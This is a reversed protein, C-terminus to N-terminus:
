VHWGMPYHAFELNKFAELQKWTRQRLYDNSTGSLLPHGKLLVAQYLNQFRTMQISVEKQTHLNTFEAHTRSVSAQKELSQTLWVDGLPQDAKFLRRVQTLAQKEEFLFQTFGPWKSPANEIDKDAGGIYLARKKWGSPNFAFAPAAPTEEEAFQKNKWSILAAQTAWHTSEWVLLQIASELLLYQILSGQVILLPEGALLLTGEPAAFVNIRLRLRQLHNLFSEQFVSRGKGDTVQGLRQIVAPSFRFRSIHEALLGSGCSIQFPTDKSGMLHLHVPQQYSGDFWAEQAKFLPNLDSLWDFNTSTSM